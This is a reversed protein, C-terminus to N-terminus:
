VINHSQERCKELLTKVDIVRNSILADSSKASITSIERLLEQLVFDIKKGKEPEHSDLVSQILVLHTKFRMLEEHIDLRDLQQQVIDFFSETSATQLVVEEVTKVVLEKRAAIVQEVSKSIENIHNTLDTVHKKLDAYITKGEILRAQHLKEVVEDLASLITNDLPSDVERESSEVFMGPLRMLTNLSIDDDLKFDKKLKKAAKVYLQAMEDVLQYSQPELDIQDLYMSLSITGRLLKEKCKKTSATELHNISSSLRVSCEFFRANVSKMVITLTLKKKKHTIITKHAAYGTMSSLM